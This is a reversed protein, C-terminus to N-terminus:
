PQSETTSIIVPTSTTSSSSSSSASSSPQQTTTTTSSSLAEAASVAATSLPQQQATTSSQQKDLFTFVQDQLKTLAELFAKERREEREKEEARRAIEQALRDRELNVWERMVETERSLHAFMRDVLVQFASSQESPANTASTTAASSTLQPPHYNHSPQDISNVYQRGDLRSRKPPLSPLAMEESHDDASDISNNGNFSTPSMSYAFLENRDEDSNEIEDDNDGNEEANSFDMPDLQYQDGFDSFSSNELGNANKAQYIRHLADFFICKKRREPTPNKMIRRYEAIMNFVRTRVQDATRDYGNERIREAIKQWVHRTRKSNTLHRQVIDQTWLALLIKTEGYSWSAGREIAPRVVSSTSSGNQSMEASQTSESRYQQASM